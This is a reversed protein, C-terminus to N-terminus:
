TTGQRRAPLSQIKLEQNMRQIIRETRIQVGSNTLHYYTDFFYSEPLIAQEPSEIVPITINKRLWINFAIFEKEFQKYIPVPLSPFLYYVKAKKRAAEEHFSNLYSAVHTSSYFSTDMQMKQYLVKPSPKNLHAVFDGFQNFGERFYIEDKPLEAHLVFRMYLRDVFWRFARQFSKAFSITRVIFQKFSLHRYISPNELLLRFLNEDGYFFDGQFHEYEPSIVIIDGESIKDRIENIMYRLGLGVCLGMNVVNMGLKEKIRPSNIGLALNSGGVFIIKPSPTKELVRYKDISAALYNSGNELIYSTIIICSCAVLVFMLFIKRIIKKKM